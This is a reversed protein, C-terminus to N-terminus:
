GSGLESSRMRCVCYIRGHWLHASYSWHTLDDSRALGPCYCHPRLGVGTQASVTVPCSESHPVSEPLKLFLFLVIASLHFCICSHCVKPQGTKLDLQYDPSRQKGM